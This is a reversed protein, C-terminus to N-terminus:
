TKTTTKETMTKGKQEKKQKTEIRNRLASIEETEKRENKQAKFLQSNFHIGRGTYQM